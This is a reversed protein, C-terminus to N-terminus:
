FAAELTTQRHACGHIRDHGLADAVCCQRLYGRTPVKETRVASRLTDLQRLHVADNPARLGKDKRVNANHESAAANYCPMFRTSLGSRYRRM